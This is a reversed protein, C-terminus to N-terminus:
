REAALIPAIRIVNCHDDVMSSTKKHLVSGKSRAPDGEKGDCHRGDGSEENGV